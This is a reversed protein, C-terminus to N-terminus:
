KTSGTNQQLGQHERTLDSHAQVLQQYNENLQAYAQTLETYRLQLQHSEQLIGTHQLYLGILQNETRTTSNQLRFYEQLLQFHVRILSEASQDVQHYIELPSLPVQMESSQVSAPHSQRLDSPDPSLAPVSDETDTSQESTPHSQRSDSSDPSLVPVSDEADTSQESNPHSQTSNTSDPSLVPVSDKADTSQQSATAPSESRTPTQLPALNQLSRLFLIRDPYQIIFVREPPQNQVLDLLAEYSERIEIHYDPSRIIIFQGSRLGSPRSLIWSQYIQLAELQFPFQPHSM